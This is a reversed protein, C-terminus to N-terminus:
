MFKAKENEPLKCSSHCCSGRISTNLPSLPSDLALLQLGLWVIHAWGFHLSPLIFPPFAKKPAGEEKEKTAEEEEKRRKSNNKREGLNM